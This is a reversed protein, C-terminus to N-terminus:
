RPGTFQGGGHLRVYGEPQGTVARSVRVHGSCGGPHEIMPTSDARMNVWTQSAMTPQQSQAFNGATGGSSTKRGESQGREM